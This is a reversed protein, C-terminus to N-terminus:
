VKKGTKALILAQDYTCENERAYIQLARDLYPYKRPNVHSMGSEVWARHYLAQLKEENVDFIGM